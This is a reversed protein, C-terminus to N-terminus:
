CHETEFRGWMKSMQAEVDGIEKKALTMNAKDEYIKDLKEFTKKLPKNNDKLLESGSEM